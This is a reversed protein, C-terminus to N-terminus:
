DITLTGGIFTMTSSTISDITLAGEVLSLEDSADISSDIALIREPFDLHKIPETTGDKERIADAVDEYFDKMNAYWKAYLTVNATLEDGSYAPNTLASNYNWGVFINNEKTATPLPTPLEEVDELKTVSTGGNTVFTVEYGAPLTLTGNEELWSILQTNTVDGGTILITKYAENTWGDAFSYVITDDYKLARKVVTVSGDLSIRNFNVGNSNFSTTFDVSGLTVGDNGVWTYGTLNTIAM